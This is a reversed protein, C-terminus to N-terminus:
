QPGGEPPKASLEYDETDIAEMAELYAQYDGLDRHVREALETAVQANDDRQRKYHALAAEVSESAADFMAIADREAPVSGTLPFDHLQRWAAERARERRDSM